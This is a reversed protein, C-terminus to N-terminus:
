EEDGRGRPGGGRAAVAPLALVADVDRMAAAAGTEDADSTVAGEDHGIVRSVAEEVREAVERRVRVRIQEEDIEGVAIEQL